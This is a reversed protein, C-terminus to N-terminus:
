LNILKDYNKELFAQSNNSQLYSFIPCYHIDKNQIKEYIYSYRESNVIEELSQNLLNGLYFPNNKKDINLYAAWACTYLNGNNDVGLKELLMNCYNKNENPIYCRFACHLKIKKSIFSDNKFLKIANLPNYKNPYKEFQLRGVPMLRLLTITNPNLSKIEEILKKLIREDKTNYESLTILLNVKFNNEILTKAIEYNYKNYENGRFNENWFAPYDFSIDIEDTIELLKSYNGKCFNDISYGTTTLTLESKIIYKSIHKIVEIDNKDYLPDGGAIDLHLNNIKNLEEAIKIREYFSLEKNEKNSSNTACFTCNFNCKKTINWIVKLNNLKENFYNNKFSEPLTEIKIKEELHSIIDYNTKITLIDNKMENISIFKYSKKIKSYFENFDKKINVFFFKYNILAYEFKPKQKLINNLDQYKLEEIEFNFNFNYKKKFSKRIEEKKLEKHDTIYLLWYGNMKNKEVLIKSENNLIKKIIFIYTYDREITNNEFEKFLLSIDSFKKHYTYWKIFSKILQYLLFLFLISLFTIISVDIKSIEPEKLIKYSLLLISIITLLINIWQLDPKDEIIKEVINKLKNKDFILYNNM